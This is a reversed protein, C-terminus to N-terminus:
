PSPGHEWCRSPFAAASEAMLKAGRPQRCPQVRKPDSVAYSVRPPFLLSPPDRRHRGPHSHPHAWFNMFKKSASRGMGVMGLLIVGTRVIM